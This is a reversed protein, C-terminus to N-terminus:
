GISCGLKIRLPNTSQATMGEVCVEPNSRSALQALEGLTPSAIM